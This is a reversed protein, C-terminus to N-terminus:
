LATNSKRWGENIRFILERVVEVKMDVGQRLSEIEPLVEIDPQVGRGEKVLSSNMVLRFKPLRFQIRTNPLTVDPIMWATNGYAGGGTEEGVILVNSQGKMAQAFLTTASFSNGGTIIYINGNFHNKKKPKFSHREFYGFHYKGDDEKKTVFQMMLWYIPQLRIMSAYKSSRRVAYLSDAIRFRHNILYQTLLTSNGADGGGNSRVDIALHRIGHEKMIRFSRRFFGRLKNGRSFTSVTMYASKLSTDIQINRTINLGRSRIDRRSIDGTRFAGGRGTTDQLPDFVPIRIAREQALTDIYVIDLSDPLGFVNRYLTGFNGRNSLSQYKGNIAYGDGSIYNFFTDRLAAGNYGNISKVVVGRRLISDKRNLNALVVMTDSWIKISLPFIKLRATDLYNSYERSYRVSTHGCRFKSAVYSLLTRFDREHMSDTLKAYAEDFYRNISDKPTFWYLSPHSEELVNRFLTFDEQLDEVPYKAHPNFNKRSVTCSFLFICMGAWLMWKLGQM